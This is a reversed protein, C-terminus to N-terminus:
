KELDELREQLMNLYAEMFYSQSYMMAIQKPKVHTTHVAGTQYDHLFRNLKDLKDRLEEEERKLREILGSM